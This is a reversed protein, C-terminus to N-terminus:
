LLGDPRNLRIVPRIKASSQKSVFDLRYGSSSIDIVVQKAQGGDNVEADLWYRGQPATGGADTFAKNFRTMNMSPFNINSPGPTFGTLSSVGAPILYKFYRTEDYGYYTNNLNVEPLGAFSVGLWMFNYLNSVRWSSMGPVRVVSAQSEYSGAIQNIPHQWNNIYSIGNQLLREYDNIIWSHTESSTANSWQTYLPSGSSTEVDNLAIAWNGDPRPLVGVPTKGVNKDLEGVTGDSFLYYPTTMLLRVVLFYQKNAELQKHAPVRIMGTLSRNYLSGDTITFKLNACDTTPLFYTETYFFNGWYNGGPSNVIGWDATQFDSYNGMVPYSYSNTAFDYIMTEPISNSNSTWSYKIHDTPNTPKAVYGSIWPNEQRMENTGFLHVYSNVLALCMTVYAGAHKMEFAVDQKPDQNIVVGRQVTFRATGADARHVTFQTGNASVKDNFCVFDYTGHPLFISEATGADPTFSSGQFTGKLEGKKVGGQYAQITYHPPVDNARTKAEAAKAEKTNTTAPELSVEAMWGNGLDQLEPKTPAAARTGAAQEGAEYDKENIKFSIKAMGEQPQSEINDENSCGSLAVSALLSLLIFTVKFRNIKMTTKKQITTKQNNKSNLLAVTLIEEM